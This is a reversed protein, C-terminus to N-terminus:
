KTRVALYRALSTLEARTQAAMDIGDMAELALALQHIVERGTRARGGASEVLVAARKVEEEDTIEQSLIAGLELSEPLGANLAAVVPLTKKRRRLDSFVPKGTLAESGWIGLLDDVAQFALGLHRGMEALADVTAQSAGGLLAGISASCSLLASTKHSSMELYEAISIDDRQEFTLDEAQGLILEVVAANLHDAAMAYRSSGNRSLVEGSLALLADGALVALGTGFITWATPRHRRMRDCDMVDDHLISFNHVLEVAVAGPIAEAADTGAVEASLIALTPRVAKGGGGNAGNAETGDANVWGLHYAAIRRLRPHLKSIARRLAPDALRQGRQLVLIPDVIMTAVEGSTTM